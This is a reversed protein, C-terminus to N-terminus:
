KEQVNLSNLLVQIDLLRCFRDEYAEIDKNLHKAKIEFALIERRFNLMMKRFKIVNYNKEIFNKRYCIAENLQHMKQKKELFENLKM